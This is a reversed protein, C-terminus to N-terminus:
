PACYDSTAGMAQDAPPLAEIAVEAAAGFMGFWCLGYAHTDNNHEALWAPDTSSANRHRLDYVGMDIFTNSTGVVGVAVAIPEGATVTPSPEFQTSRSDLEVPPPFDEFVAAWKPTLERLHGLRVMLGCPHVIDLTYQLEGSALYHAGRILVGDIPSVVPVDYAEVGDFRFGGHAKYDGRVQGPYLLGTALSLDVPMVLEDPCETAPGGLNTWEQGTWAWAPAGTGDSRTASAPRAGSTSAGGAEPLTRESGPPEDSGCAAAMAVLAAVALAKFALRSPPRLAHKMPSIMPRNAMFQM